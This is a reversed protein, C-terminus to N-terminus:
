IWHQTHAILGALGIMMGTLWFFNSWILNRLSDTKQDIKHDMREFKEDFKEDFKEFRQDIKEFGHRM